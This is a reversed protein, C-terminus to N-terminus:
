SALEKELAEDHRGQAAKSDHWNRYARLVVWEILSRAVRSTPHALERRCPSGTPDIRLTYPFHIRARDTRAHRGVRLGGVVFCGCLVISAYCHPKPPDTPRPPGVTVQTIELQMSM